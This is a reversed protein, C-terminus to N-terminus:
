RRRLTSTDLVALARVLDMTAVGAHHELALQTM